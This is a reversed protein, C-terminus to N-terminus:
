RSSTRQPAGYRAAADAMAREVDPNFGVWKARVNGDADIVVMTPFATVGYAHTTAQSEDLVVNSLRHARAYAGATAASEGADVAVVDIDRHARAYREVLPLSFRCPECWSAWFDLFVVRGRHQALSFTGGDLAALQVAPAAVAGGGQLRPAVFFHFLAYLVILVALADLARAVPNGAGKVPANSEASM